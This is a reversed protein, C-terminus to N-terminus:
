LYMFTLNVAFLSLTPLPLKAKGGKISGDNWREDDSWNRLICWFRFFIKSCSFSEYCWFLFLIVCYKSCGLSECLTKFLSIQINKFIKKLIIKVGREIVWCSKRKNIREIKDRISIQRHACFSWNNTYCVLTPIWM